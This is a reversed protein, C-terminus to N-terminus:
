RRVSRTRQITGAGVLLAAWVLLFTNPEPIVELSVTPGDYYGLPPYLTLHTPMDLNIQFMGGGISQVKMAWAPALFVSWYDADLGSHFRMWGAQLMLSDSLVEGAAGFDTFFHTVTVMQMVGGDRFDSGNITASVDFWGSAQQVCFHDYATCNTLALYINSVLLDKITWGNAFQYVVGPPSGITFPPPFDPNDSTFVTSASLSFSLSWASLLLALLRAPKM